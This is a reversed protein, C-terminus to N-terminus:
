PPMSLPKGQSCPVLSAMVAPACQQWAADAKGASNLMLLTKHLPQMDRPHHMRLVWSRRSNTASHCKQAVHSTDAGVQMMHVRRHTDAPELWAVAVHQTAHQCAIYQCYGAGKTELGRLMAPLQQTHLFPRSTSTYRQWASISPVVGVSLQWCISATASSGSFFLILV